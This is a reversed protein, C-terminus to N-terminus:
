QAAPTTKGADAPSAVPSPKVTAASLANAMQDSTFILMHKVKDYLVTAKDGRSWKLCTPDDSATPTWASGGVDAGMINQMEADTFGGAKLYRLLVDVVARTGVDHVSNIEVMEKFIDHALKQNEPPPMPGPAPTAAAALTATLLLLPAAVLMAHTITKM